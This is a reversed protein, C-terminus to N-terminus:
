NQNEDHKKEHFEIMHNWALDFIVNGFILIIKERGLIKASGLSETEEVYIINLDM